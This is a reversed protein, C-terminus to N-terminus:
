REQPPAAVCPLRSQLDARQFHVEDLPGHMALALEDIQQRSFEFQELIEHAARAQDHGPRHQELIYPIEIEHRLGIDDVDLDAVQAALEIGRARSAEDDIDAGDAEFEIRIVSTKLSRANRRARPNQRAIERAVAAAKANM